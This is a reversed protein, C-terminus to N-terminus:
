QPALLHYVRLGSPGVMLQVCSGLFGRLQPTATEAVYVPCVISCLGTCLGTAFRGIYVVWVNPAVVLTLYSLAFLVAAVMMTGKRGLRSMLFGGLQGGVLAGIPMLSGVWSLESDTLGFGGEQPTRALMPGAPSTWSIATGMVLNGM